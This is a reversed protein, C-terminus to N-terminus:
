LCSTTSMALFLMYNHKLYVWWANLKFSPGLPVVVKDLTPYLLINNKYIHFVISSGVNLERVGLGFMNPM